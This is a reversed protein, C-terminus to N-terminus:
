GTSINHLGSMVFTYNQEQNFNSGPLSLVRSGASNPAIILDNDISSSNKGNIKFVCEAPKLVLFDSTKNTIKLKLKTSGYTSVADDIVLSYDSNEFTNSKYFVQEQAHSYGLICFAFCSFIFKKM